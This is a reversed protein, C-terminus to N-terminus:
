ESQASDQEAFVTIAGSYSAVWVARASSDFTVGIPHHAVPIEQIVSMTATDVKSLTDSNYNVVYLSLGDDSVAMSRPADGTSIRNVVTKTELDIRIVRDDGNLTAYLYRGGPSLVLHRPNEGVGKIWGVALTGLDVVAIDTSGMVAVYATAGDDTVAIGRPHRGLPIRATETRSTTDIVSLDFSCWNSVLLTTDDPTLALFKPVAGVPIVQDITLTDAAIRYVFSDDWGDLDCEDDGANAYGPGYMQYNSVYVYAGDATAAAEVPAGQYSTKTPGLGFDGLVVTDPITAVLRREEDYVTVTHRYMMNQAFVLGHGTAVVSKPAIDGGITGVKVLELENSPPLTTVPPGPLPTPATTVPPLPDLRVADSLTTAAAAACATLTLVGLLLLLRRYM